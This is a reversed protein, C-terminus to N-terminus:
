EGKKEEDIRRQREQERCIEEDRLRKTEGALEERNRRDAERRARDKDSDGM